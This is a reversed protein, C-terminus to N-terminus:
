EIDNIVPMSRPIIFCPFNDVAQVPHHLICIGCDYMTINQCGRVACIVDRSTRHLPPRVVHNQPISQLWDEYTTCNPPEIEGREEVIPEPFVDDLGRPNLEELVEDWDRIVFPIEDEVPVLPPLEPFEFEDQPIVRDNNDNNM